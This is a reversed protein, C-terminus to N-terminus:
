IKDGSGEIVGSKPDFSILSQSTIHKCTDVCATRSSLWPGLLHSLSLQRTWGFSLSKPIDPGRKGGVWM